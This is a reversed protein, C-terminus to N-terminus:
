LSSAKGLKKIKIMQLVLYILTGWVGIMISYAALLLWSPTRNATSWLTRQDFFTKDIQTPVGWGVIQEVFLNGLEENDEVRVALVYNGKEDGPLSDRTLEVTATGSSDTTYTADDGASLIKGMRVIGIKLEVEPAPVWEDGELKMIRASISRVGDENLTDISIKSKVIEIEQTQEEDTGADAVALFIHKASSDWNAKLAPPIFAKAEGRKNTADESILNAPDNTDLYLSFKKYQQPSVGKSDKTIASLVLYQQQNAVNFYKLTVFKKVTEAKETEQATAQFPGTLFCLLTGFLILWLQNNQRKKKM